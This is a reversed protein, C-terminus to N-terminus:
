YQSYPGRVLNELFKTLWVLKLSSWIEPSLVSVLVFIAGFTSIGRSFEALQM